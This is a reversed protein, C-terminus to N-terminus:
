GEAQIGLIWSLALVFVVGTSLLVTPLSRSTTMFFAYFMFAYAALSAATKRQRILFIQIGQMVMGTLVAGGVVGPIGFNAYFDAFFAGGASGTELTNPYITFLVYRSADFHKEGSLWALKGITAGHQLPIEKPITEFYVYAVYAPSYFVRIFVIRAADLLTADGSSSFVSVFIPFALIAILVIAIQKRSVRGRRCLYWCASVVLLITAVPGRAISVSAFLVAAALSILFLTLWKTQKTSLYKALAFAILFPYLAERLVSYAYIFHSDLGVFSEERLLALYAFNGPDRIMAVLPWEKVEYFYLLTMGLAGILLWLYPRSIVGAECNRQNFYEALDAAEFKLMWNAIWVGFAVGVLVGTTSFLFRFLHPGVYIPYSYGEPTIELFIFLSPIWCMLVFCAFWVSAITPREVDFLRVSGHMLRGSVVVTVISAVVVPGRNREWLVAVIYVLTLMAVCTAATLLSPEAGEKPRLDARFPIGM